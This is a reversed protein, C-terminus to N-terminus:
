QRLGRMWFFGRDPNIIDAVLAIVILLILIGILITQIAITRDKRKIFEYREALLRNNAAMQAEKIQVQDKLFSVKKQEETNSLRLLECEQELELSSASKDCPYKGWTGDVLTKLIPAVTSVKADELKGALFRDVTAKSLDSKDTIRQNTWEGPELTNLYEKRLRCWEALGEMTMAYFNPGDCTVGISPCRICVNYPKENLTEPSFPM